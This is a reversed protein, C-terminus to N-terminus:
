VTATNLVRETYFIEFNVEAEPQSQEGDAVQLDAHPRHQCCRWLRWLCVLCLTTYSIPGMESVPAWHIGGVVAATTWTTSSRIRIHISYYVLLVHVSMVLRMLWHGSAADQRCESDSDSHYIRESRRATKEACSSSAEDNFVLTKYM